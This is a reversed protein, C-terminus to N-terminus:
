SPIVVSIRILDHFYNVIVFVVKCTQVVIIVNCRRYYFFYFYFGGHCCQASHFSSCCSHCYDCLRCYHSSDVTIVNIAIATTVVLSLLLFDYSHYFFTSLLLAILISIIISGVM